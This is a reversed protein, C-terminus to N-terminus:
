WLVGGICGLMGHPFQYLPNAAVKGIFTELLIRDLFIIQEGSSAAL